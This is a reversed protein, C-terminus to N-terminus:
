DPLPALVTQSEQCISCEFTRLDTRAFKLHPEIGVLRM